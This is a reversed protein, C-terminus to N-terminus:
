ISYESVIDSLDDSSKSVSDGTERLLEFGSTITSTSASLEEATAANEESAASLNDVLGAIAAIRKELDVNVKDLKDVGNNVVEVNSVIAEFSDKTNEVSQKQKEVFTKVQRSKETAENSSIYLENIMSNITEVSNASQEALKRIEDAVVAFGRGVEGARAAEISANLSLLNTQNAIDSIMDSAVGITKTKQDIGEIAVYISDFAKLTQETIDTLDIVTEMSRATIGEIQQCADALSKTNNVSETSLTDIEQLESAIQAVDEAQHTATNALEGAAADISHMSEVSESTNSAMFSSSNQLSDSSSKLTTVVSLFQEKLKRAASSLQAIEDNGEIIKVETNLKKDAINTINDTVSVIGKRVYMIIYISFGLTGMCFIFAVAMVAVVKRSINAQLKVEAEVAYEEMLDEMAAIDERTRDFYIAFKEVDGQGSKPDYVTAVVNVNEQFQAYLQELNHGDHEYKALEPYTEVIGEVIAVREITQQLNEYYDNVYGDVTEQPVYAAYALVSLMGVYSQYFDRDANILTSNAQYLQDYYLNKSQTSTQNTIFANLVISVLFLAITPIVMLFLKTSLKMKKVSM